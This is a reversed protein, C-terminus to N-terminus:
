KRPATRQVTVTFEGIRVARTIKDRERFHAYKNFEARNHVNAHPPSLHSNTAKDKITVALAAYEAPKQSAAAFSTAGFGTLLRHVLQVRNFVCSIFM